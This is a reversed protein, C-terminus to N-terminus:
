ISLVELFHGKASGLPVAYRCYSSLLYRWLERAAANMFDAYIYLATSAKV